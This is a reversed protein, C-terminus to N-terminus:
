EFCQVSLGPIDICLRFILFNLPLYLFFQKLMLSLKFSFHVQDFFLLGIRTPSGFLLLFFFSKGVIDPLGAEVFQM